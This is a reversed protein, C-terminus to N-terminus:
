IFSHVDKAPYGPGPLIMDDIDPSRLAGAEQDIYLTTALVETAVGAGMVNNGWVRFWYSANPNLHYVDIQRQFYWPLDKNTSKNSYNKKPVTLRYIVPRVM